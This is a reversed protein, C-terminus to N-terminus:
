LDGYMAQLAALMALGATETRLIRPGLRLGISGAVALRALDREGLGGEPGIVFCGGRALPTAASTLTNQAEPDLHFIPLRQQPNTALADLDPVPAQDLWAELKMARSLAPIKARGSQGCASAIVALWHQHRKDGREADLRVECRETIVPIIARVGLETAKQLVFDMKEGRAVAQVLILPLPSENALAHVRVVRASATHKGVAILEAEYDHGDGNFLLVRAGDGLRLVRLLHTAVGEPLTIAVGEALPLDLACRTLRM